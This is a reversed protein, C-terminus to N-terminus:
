KQRGIAGFVRELLETTRAVPNERIRKEEEAVMLFLGDLAKDTVYDDINVSGKFLSAFRGVGSSEMIQKYGATVGTKETAQKVIPLFRRTLETESKKRFYETIATSSESLLLDKADAVTMSKVIDVFVESAAPVAQEAARNLTTEFQTVLAGQGIKQLGREVTRLQEPLPIHVQLNTLFGNTRGLQAVASQLGKSLAEKIGANMEETSLGAGQLVNAEKGRKFLGGLFGGLGDKDSNTADAAPLSVRALLAAVTLIM